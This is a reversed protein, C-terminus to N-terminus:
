REHVEEVRGVDLREVAGDPEEARGVGSLRLGSIGGVAEGLDLVQERDRVQAAPICQVRLQESLVADDGGADRVGSLSWRLLWSGVILLAASDSEPRVRYKEWRVAARNRLTLRRPAAM